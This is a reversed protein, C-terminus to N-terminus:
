SRKRGIRRVAERAKRKRRRGFALAGLLIAFVLIAGPLLNEEVTGRAEEVLSPAAVATSAVLPVTRVRRGDVVVDARGLRDGRRIPGEVEAPVDFGVELAQGERLGVRATAPPVLGLRDSRLRVPVEVAIEGRRLPARERYLGFGWDLLRSSEADRSAESDAGMVVGILEVGNRRGASVLLYGARSTAGTKVGTAWPYSLLFDNTTVIEVPPRYSTLRAERLGAIRRFRPMKMLVLSLRALDSATSLHGPADLGIPNRFGTSDLGLRAATRNMLGVFAPVNGSVARALAVASDNGSLMILGHLLDRVSVRQGAELGMLSEVPDAPYYGVRVMREPDLRRLALYATMLKTTSAMPLVRDVSNSALVAGSRAEVLVWSRAALRPSVSRDSASRKVEERATAVGPVALLLLCCLALGVAALRSGVSGPGTGIAPITM